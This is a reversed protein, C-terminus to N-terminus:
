YLLWLKIRGYWTKKLRDIEKLRAEKKQAKCKDFAEIFTMDAPLKGVYKGGPTKGDGIWIERNDVNYLFEGEDWIKSWRKKSPGRKPIYKM